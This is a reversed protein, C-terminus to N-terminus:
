AGRGASDDLAADLEAYGGHDFRRVFGAVPAPLPVMEWLEKRDGVRDYAWVADKDVRVCGAGLSLERRLYVAVPCGCAQQPRGLVDAAKLSNAVADPDAGLAALLDTLRSM